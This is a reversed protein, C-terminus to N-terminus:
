FEYQARLTEKNRMAYFTQIRRLQHSACLIPSHYSTHAIYLGQIQKLALQEGSLARIGDATLLLLNQNAIMTTRKHDEVPAPGKFDNLKM